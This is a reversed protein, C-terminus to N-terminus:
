WRLQDVDLGMAAAVKELTAKRPQKVREMQAYAAQTIGVRVAVEGEGNAHDAVRISARRVAHSVGNPERHPDVGVHQDM